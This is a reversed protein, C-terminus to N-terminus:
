SPPGNRPIRVRMTPMHLVAFHGDNNADITTIVVALCGREPRHMIAAIKDLTLNHMQALAACYIRPMFRADHSDADVSIVGVSDRMEHDCLPTGQLEAIAEFFHAQMAPTLEHLFPLAELFAAQENENAIM